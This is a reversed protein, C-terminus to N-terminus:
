KKEIYEYVNEQSFYGERCLFTVEMLEIQEMREIM